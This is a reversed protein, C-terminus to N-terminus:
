NEYKAKLENLLSLERVKRAAENKKEKAVRAEFEVDTEFRKGFAALYERDSYDDSSPRTGIEYDDFDPHENKLTNLKIIVEDFSCYELDLDGDIEVRIMKKTM